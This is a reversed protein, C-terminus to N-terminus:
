LLQFFMIKKQSQSGFKGGLIGVVIDCQSVESYCSEELGQNKEYTVDGKESLRVEYGMDSFANEIAYRQEKLDYCTSSIFIRPTPM